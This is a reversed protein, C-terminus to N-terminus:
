EDHPIIMILRGSLMNIIITDNLAINSIGSDGIYWELGDLEWKLGSSTMQCLNKGVPFFSILTNKKISISFHRDILFIKEKPTIWLSPAIERSFLSYLAIQHDFRGGGGGIIIIKNYKKQYLYDLALETDTFDKDCNYKIIKEPSIQELLSPDILSDFDGLVIDPEIDYSKLTDLGSDAAIIFDSKSLIDAVFRYEPANGGTVIIGTM